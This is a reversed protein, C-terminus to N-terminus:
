KKKALQNYNKKIIVSTGILVSAEALITIIAAAKIGWIPLLMINLCLNLLLAIIAIKLAKTQLKLAVILYGTLHNLYAFLTALSLIRLILIETASPQGTLITIIWTALINITIIILISIAILVKSSQIITHKLKALDTAAHKSLSPLLANLIFAAPLILNDYVKYSLGYVGVKEVSHFHEILLTDIRSYITFIILTTGLPISQKLLHKVSVYDVKLTLKLKQYLRVSIPASIILILIGQATFITAIPQKTLVSGLVAVLSILVSFTHIISTTKLQDVSHYIVAITEKIALAILAVIAFPAITALEAPLTLVKLAFLGLMTIITLLFLRIHIFSSITKSKDSQKTSVERVLTLHTGLDFFSLLLLIYNTFYIYQGYEATSYNRRLIITTAVSIAIVFSRASMQAITDSSIKNQKLQKLYTTLM